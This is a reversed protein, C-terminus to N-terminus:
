LREALSILDPLLPQEFITTGPHTVRGPPASGWARRHVCCTICPWHESHDGHKPSASSTQTAQFNQCGMFMNCRRGCFGIPLFDPRELQWLVFQHAAFPGIGRQTTLAVIVQDDPLQAIRELDLAGSEVAEALGRVYDERRPALGFGHLEGAKLALISAPTISQDTLRSRLKAIIALAMREPIQQAIIGYVLAAFHDKPSTELRRRLDLPGVQEILDCMVPDANRLHELATDTNPAAMPQKTHSAVATM